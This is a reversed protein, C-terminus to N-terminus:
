WNPLRPEQITPTDPRQRKPTTKNANTKRAGQKGGASRNCRRHEVGVDNPNGGQALDHRHGVDWPMDATVPRGCRICLTPLTAALRPRMKYTMATHKAAIHHKSM